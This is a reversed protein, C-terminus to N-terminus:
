QILIILIIKKTEKMSSDQQKTGTVKQEMVIREILDIMENETLRLQPKTSEKKVGRKTRQKTNEMDYQNTDEMKKKMREQM